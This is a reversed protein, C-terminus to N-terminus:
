AASRTALNERHAQENGCNPHRGITMVTWQPPILGGELSRLNVIAVNWDVDPYGSETGECLTAIVTRTTMISVEQIDFGAGTFTPSACGAPQLTGRADHVPTPVSGDAMAHQLCSWCAREAGPLQRFVLGGWAGPTTSACIYAIGREAALGSLLLQIGFEATADLILDTELLQEFNRSDCYNPPQTRQGRGIMGHFKEVKTYPYNQGIFEAVVDVKSRGAAALGLPWRSSTGAEMFDYDVIKLLGIGSRALEITIPAGVSGQGIATVRKGLLAALEPARSLLDRQGARCARALHWSDVTRVLFLWADHHKGQESEEPFVIGLVEPQGREFARKTSLSTQGVDRYRASVIGLLRKLDTEIIPADWRVWRGRAVQPFVRSFANDACAVVKGDSDLVETVAGRFPLAGSFSLKLKGCTITPDLQWSSDVLVATDPYYAYYDTIPEGQPEELERLGAPDETAFRMLKPLQAMLVDGLTDDVSWNTSARGLLCLNKAFPNQHRRLDLSPAVVEFRTNPFFHPYHALLRIAERGPLTVTLELVLQGQRWALEDRKHTIGHSDLSAIERDLRGPFREWWPKM